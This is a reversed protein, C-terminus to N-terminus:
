SGAGTAGYRRTTGMLPNAPPCERLDELTKNVYIGSEEFSIRDVWSTPLAVKKGNRMRVVLSPITWSKDEILFDEVHGAPGDLARIVHGTVVKTTRLHPDFTKGGANGAEKATFLNEESSGILAEAGWYFEWGYHQHLRSQYQLAIPKDTGTRPSRRVQERTVTVPLVRLGEQPRRLVAPSLLVDKRFLWNGTNVVVYRVMWTSDDFYLEKVKGIYGDLARIRFGVLRHASRLAGM